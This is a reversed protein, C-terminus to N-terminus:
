QEDEKCWVDMSWTFCDKATHLTRGCSWCLDFKECSQGFAQQKQEKSLHISTFMWGCVRHIGHVRMLQLTENREWSELDSTSGTTLTNVHSFHDM